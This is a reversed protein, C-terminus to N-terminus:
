TGSRCSSFDAGELALARGRSFASCHSAQVARSSYSGSVVVLSLRHVSIFVWCLWFIFLNCSLFFFFSSSIFVSLSLRETTDLEIIGHVIMPDPWFAPTPLRERRWPIKGIWPDFGTRRCKLHIRLWSLWM